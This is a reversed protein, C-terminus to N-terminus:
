DFTNGCNVGCGCSTGCGRKNMYCSCRRTCGKKCNCRVEAGESKRKGHVVPTVEDGDEKTGYELRYATALAMSQMNLQAFEDRLIIDRLKVLQEEVPMDIPLVKYRDVPIWFNNKGDSIIGHKAVV